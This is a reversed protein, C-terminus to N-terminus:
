WSSYTHNFIFYFVIHFGIVAPRLCKLSCIIGGRLQHFNSSCLIFALLLKLCLLYGLFHVWYRRKLLLLGIGFLKIRIWGVEWDSASALQSHVAFIDATCLVDKPLTVSVVTIQSYESCGLATCLWYSYELESICCHFNPIQFSQQCKYLCKVM